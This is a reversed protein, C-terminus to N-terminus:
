EAEKSQDGFGSSSVTITYQAPQIQVFRYEGNSSSKATVTQGSAKDALTVTAGSVLAGSPDKITGRLSTTANQAPSVLSICLLLPLLRFYPM